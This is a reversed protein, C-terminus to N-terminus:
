APAGLSDPHGPALFLINEYAIAGAPPRLRGAATLRYPSYGHACLLDHGARSDPEGSVEMHIARIRGAALANAAGQLAPLEYGELDLKWLSVETIAHRAIEADLTTVDVPAGSAANVHNWSGHLSSDPHDHPFARGPSAGLASPSLHVRDLRNAALCAALWERAGAGPEYAYIRAAPAYCAFYRVAQGIIAGSDVIAAPAPQRRFWRWFGPGEYSGYVIWRHTPNTLDLRWVLGPATRLWTVGLAALRRGFLRECLGLQRPFEWAQLLRLAFPLRDPSQFTGSMASPM